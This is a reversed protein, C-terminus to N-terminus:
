RSLRQRSGAKNYVLLSASKSVDGKLIGQASILGNIAASLIGQGRLIEDRIERIEKKRLASHELRVLMTEKQSALEELQDFDGAKLTNREAELVRLLENM